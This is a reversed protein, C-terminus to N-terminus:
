GRGADAMRIEGRILIRRRGREDLAGVGRRIGFDRGKGFPVRFVGCTEDM